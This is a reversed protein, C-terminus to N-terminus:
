LMLREVTMSDVLCDLDVCEDIGPLKGKDTYQWIFPHPQGKFKPRRSYNPIWLECDAADPYLYKDYVHANIYLLPKRKYHEELLGIIKMVNQNLNEKNVDEEVDICPILDCDASKVYNIFNHVQEEPTSTASYLLYAGVHLGEERAQWVNEHFNKDQISAGETAKVIVFKLGNTAAIEHWNIEGQYHSVDIGDIQAGKPMKHSRGCARWIGVSLGILAITVLLLWRWASMKKQKKRSKKKNTKAKAM